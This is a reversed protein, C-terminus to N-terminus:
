IRAPDQERGRKSHTKPYKSLSALDLRLKYKCIRSFLTGMSANRLGELKAVRDFEENWWSKEEDAVYGSLRASPGRGNHNSNRASVFGEERM